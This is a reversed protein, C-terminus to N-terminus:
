TCLPVAFTLSLSTSSYCTGSSTSRVCGLDTIESAIEPLANSVHRHLADYYYGTVTVQVHQADPM